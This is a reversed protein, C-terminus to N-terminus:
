MSAQKEKDRVGNHSRIEEGTSSTSQDGIENKEFEAMTTSDLGVVDNMTLPM